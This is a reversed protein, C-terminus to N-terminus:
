RSAASSWCTPPARWCTPAPPPRRAPGSPAAQAAREAAAQAEDPTAERVWGVTDSLEAPNALRAWGEAQAPDAPLAVGAPAAFAAHRTSNLLAAALSALQQEHALNLGHSNPRAESGQQAFLEGPLAIRPHPAGLRGETRAIDLADQVPDSVLEAVPVSADGIRNVFSTNAGNELLRRVLYALLTEHSRFLM